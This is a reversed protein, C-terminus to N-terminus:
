PLVTFSFSKTTSLGGGDLVTLSWNVRPGPVLFARSFSPLTSYIGGEGRRWAYAVVGVDDTSGTGNFTCTRGAVCTVNVVAV